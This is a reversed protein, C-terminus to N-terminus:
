ARGTRVPITLWAHYGVLEWAAARVELLARKEPVYPAPDPLQCRYLFQLAAAQITATVLESIMESVRM